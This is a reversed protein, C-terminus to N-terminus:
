LEVVADEGNIAEAAARGTAVERIKKKKTKKVAKPVCSTSTAWKHQSM